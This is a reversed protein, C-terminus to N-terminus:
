MDIEDGFMEASITLKHTADYECDYDEFEEDLEIEMERSNSGLNDYYFIRIEGCLVSQGM